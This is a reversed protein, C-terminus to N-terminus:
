MFANVYQKVSFVLNPLESLFLNSSQRSEYPRVPKRDTLGTALKVKVIDRRMKPGQWRANNPGCDGLLDAM